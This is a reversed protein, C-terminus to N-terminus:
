SNDESGVQLAVKAVICLYDIAGFVIRCASSRLAGFFFALFWARCWPKQIEEKYWMYNRIKRGLLTSGLPDFRPSLGASCFQREM